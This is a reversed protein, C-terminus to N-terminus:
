TFPGEYMTCLQIVHLERHPCLLPKNVSRIKEWLSCFLVTQDAHPPDSGTHLQGYHAATQQSQWKAWCTLIFSFVSKRRYKWCLEGSGITIKKRNFPFHFVFDFALRVFAITGPAFGKCHVSNVLLQLLYVFALKPRCAARSICM